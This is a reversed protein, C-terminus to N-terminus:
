MEHWKLVRLDEKKYSDNKADETTWLKEDWFEMFKYNSTLYEQNKIAWHYNQGSLNDYGIRVCRIDIPNSTFEKYYLEANIETANPIKYPCIGNFIEIITNALKEIEKSVNWIYKNIYKITFDPDGATYFEPFLVVSERLATVIVPNKLLIGLGIITTNGIDNIITYAMDLINKVNWKETSLSEMAYYVPDKVQPLINDKYEYKGYLGSCYLETLKKYGLMNQLDEKHKISVQQFTKIYNFYSELKESEYYYGEIPFKDPSIGLKQFIEIVLPLLDETEYKQMRHRYFADLALILEFDGVIHENIVIKDM